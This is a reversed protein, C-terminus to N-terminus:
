ARHEREARGALAHARDLLTYVGADRVRYFVRLGDRHSTVLGAQRLEMLHQSVYAQRQGLAAQLDCVSTEGARLLELIRLRAPHALVRFLAAEDRNPINPSM